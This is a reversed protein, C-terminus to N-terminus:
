EQFIVPITSGFFSSPLTIGWRALEFRSFLFEGSETTVPHVSQVREGNLIRLVLKAAEEGQPNGAFVLGGVAKGKGISFDWFGFVPVPSNCSLWQIVMADDVHRGKGDVLTHYLGVMIIDYGYEKANLVVRKWDEFHNNLKLDTVTQTFVLRYDGGFVYDKIARSTVSDDFLVLCKQLSEGFIDKLYVISRKFLPRELVGTVLSMDELYRRPNTNVGLYVVPTGERTIIPGLSKLAFDDTLVVLDPRIEYFVDLASSVQGSYKDAPLRKIDMNFFSLDVTDALASELAANHSEVWPFVPHYSNIILVTKREARAVGSMLIMAFLVIIVLISKQM